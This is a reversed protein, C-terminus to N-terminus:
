PAVSPAPGRPPSLRAVEPLHVLQSVPVLEIDNRELDPLFQGLAALTTPYPHGIALAAGQAEVARRFDRLKGLSYAVTETDDLFVSRYFAPLGQRRALDLAVSAATTRSDVFYLRHEALVKMVAAMLAADATARSGMHNNVGESYPVSGFDQEIIRAVAERSMGVRVEGPGPSASSGPEPEMPLHLMVERGARHAEDAIETSHLLRPLVSFTLSYPLELLQRAAGLDQGLDDIIIAARRLQRVERLRWEGVLMGRRLLSIEVSRRQNQSGIERIRTTLGQRAAEREIASLVADFSGATALVELPNTAELSPSSRDDRSMKIWAQRGVAAEIANRFHSLNERGEVERPRESGTRKCSTALWLNLVAPLLFSVRALAVFILPRHPHPLTAPFLALRARSLKPNRQGLLRPM